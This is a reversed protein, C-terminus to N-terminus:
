PRQLVLQYSWLESIIPVTDGISFADPIKFQVPFDQAGPIKRLTLSPEEWTTSLAKLMRM